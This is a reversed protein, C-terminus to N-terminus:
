NNTIIINSVGWIGESLLIALYITAYKYFVVCYQKGWSPTIKAGLSM